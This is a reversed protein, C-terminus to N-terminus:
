SAVCRALSYLDTVGPISVLLHQQSFSSASDVATRLLLHTIAAQGLPGWKGTGKAAKFDFVFPILPNTWDQQLITTAAISALTSVEKLAMKLAFLNAHTQNSGAPSHDTLDHDSYPETETIVACKM